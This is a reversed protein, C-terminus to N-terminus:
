DPNIKGRRSRRRLDPSAQGRYWRQWEKTSRIALWLLLLAIVGGQRPADFAFLVLCVCLFDQSFIVWLPLGRLRFFWGVQVLQLVLALLGGILGVLPLLRSDVSAVRAVGVGAIAGVVPGLILQSLQLFRQTLRNKSFLLECLSWGVLVGIAVSKPIRSILPMEMWLTDSYILGTLLLPLAVRMGAAASISLAALIEVM